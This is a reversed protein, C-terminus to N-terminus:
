LKRHPNKQARMFLALTYPTFPFKNNFASTISNERSLDFWIVYITAMNQWLSHCLTERVDVHVGKICFCFRWCCNVNYSIPLVIWNINQVRNTYTCHLYFWFLSIESVRCYDHQLRSSDASCWVFFNGSLKLLGNSEFTYHATGILFWHACCHQAANINMKSNQMLEINNSFVPTAM